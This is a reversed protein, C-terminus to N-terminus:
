PTSDRGSFRDISAIDDDPHEKGHQLYRDDEPYASSRSRRERSEDPYKKPAPM